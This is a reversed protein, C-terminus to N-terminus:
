YGVECIMKKGKEVVYIDGSVFPMKPYKTVKGTIINVTCFRMYFFPIQNVIKCYINEEDIFGTHTIHGLGWPVRYVTDIHSDKISLLRVERNNYIYTLRDESPSWNHGYYSSDDAKIESLIEFPSTKMICINGYNLCKDSLVSYALLKGTNSFSYNNPRCESPIIKTHVKTQINSVILSKIFKSNKGLTVYNHQESILQENDVLHIWSVECEPLRFDEWTTIVKLPNGGLIFLAKKKIDYYAMVKGDQSLTIFRKATVSSYNEIPISREHKEKGQFDIERFKVDNGEGRITYINQESEQICIIREHNRESPSSIFAMNKLSPLEYIGIGMKHDYTGIPHSVATCGSAYIFMLM